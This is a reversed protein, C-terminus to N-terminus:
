PCELDLKENEEICKGIVKRVQEQANFVDQPTASPDDDVNLAMHLAELKAHKLECRDALDKDDPKGAACKCLRDVYAQCADEGRKREADSIAAPRSSHPADDKKCGGLGFTALLVLAALAKM